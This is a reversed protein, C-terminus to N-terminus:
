QSDEAMKAIQKRKKEELKAIRRIQDRFFDVNKVIEDINPTELMRNLKLFLPNNYAKRNAVDTRIRVKPGNQTPVALWTELKPELGQNAFIADRAVRLSEFDYYVGNFNNVDCEQGLAGPKLPYFQQNVSSLIAGYKEFAKRHCKLQNNADKDVLKIPTNMARKQAARIETQLDQTCSPTTVLTMVVAMLLLIKTQFSKRLEGLGGGSQEPTELSRMTFM